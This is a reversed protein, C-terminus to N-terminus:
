GDTPVGWGLLPRYYRRTSVDRCEPVKKMLFLNEVQSTLEGIDLTRELEHYPQKGSKIEFLM